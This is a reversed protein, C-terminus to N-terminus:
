YDKSGLPGYYSDPLILSGIIPDGNLEQLQRWQEDFAANHKRHDDVWAIANNQINRYTKRESDSDFSDWGHLHQREVAAQADQSLKLFKGWIADSESRYSGDPDKQGYGLVHEIGWGWTNAAHVAADFGKDKGLLARIHANIQNYGDGASYSPDSNDWKTIQLRADGWSNLWGQARKSLKIPDHPLTAFDFPTWYEINKVAAYERYDRQESANRSNWWAKMVKPDQKYTQKILNDAKNYLNAVEYANMAGERAQNKFDYLKQDLTVLNKRLEPPVDNWRWESESTNFVLDGTSQVKGKDDFSVNFYKSLFFETDPAAAVTDQVIKQYKSFLGMDQARTSNIDNLYNRDMKQKLKNTEDIYNRMADVGPFGALTSQDVLHQLDARASIVNNPDDEGNKWDWSKTEPSYALNHVVWLPNTTYMQNFFDHRQQVYEKYSDRSQWSEYSGYKHVEHEIHAYKSQKWENYAQWGAADTASQYYETPTKYRIDGKAILDSFAMFNQESQVSPDTGVLMLAAWQKSSRMLDGIGPMRFMQYVLESPPLKVATNGEGYGEGALTKGAPIFWKSPDDKYDTMWQDTAKQYDGGAADIYTQFAAYDERQGEFAVRPATPSLLAVIGRATLLDKAQENALDELTPGDYGAYYPDKRALEQRNQENLPIIHGTEDRDLGYRHMAETIGLALSKQSSENAGFSLDLGMAQAAAVVPRPFIQTNPGYQFLYGQALPSTTNKNAWQLFAQIPPHMGPIPIPVGGIAAGLPGQAGFKVTSSSLMNMSSLPMWPSALKNALKPDLGFGQALHDTLWRYGYRAPVMYEGSVPDKKFFGSKVGLDFLQKGHVLATPNRYAIHGWAQFGEFFPQPFPFVFQMLETFRSQKTFDFMVRRVQGLAFDRSANDINRMIEPTLKADKGLAAYMSAEARRKWVAYFPQRNLADEPQRVFWDYFKNTIKTPIGGDAAEILTPAHIVPRQTVDPIHLKMAKQLNTVNGELALRAIDPSNATYSHIVKSLKDAWEDVQDPEVGIRTRLTTYRDNRAWALLARRTDDVSGGEAVSRLAISGPESQRAQNALDHSWWYLHDGANGQTPVMVEWSGDTKMAKGWNNRGRLMENIIDSQRVQGSAAAEYEYAGARQVRITGDGVPMDAGYHKDLFSAVANRDEAARHGWAISALRDQVSSTTALFRANEDGLVVRTVYAPRAVTLSKWFRLWMQFVEGSNKSVFWAARTARDAGELAPVINKVKGFVNRDWLSFLRDRMTIYHRIGQRVVVPDMVAMQNRLQSELIPTDIGKGGIVGFSQKSFRANAEIQPAFIADKLQQADEPSLGYDATIREFAQDNIDNILKEIGQNHAEIGRGSNLIEAAQDEFRRLESESFSSYRTAHEYVYEWPRNNFDLIRGPNMNPLAAIRKGVGSETVRQSTVASRVLRRPGFESLLSSGPVEVSLSGPAFVSSRSDQVIGMADAMLAQHDTTSVWSGNHQYFLPVDEWQGPKLDEAVKNARFGENIRADIVKQAISGEPATGLYHAKIGQQWERWAEDKSMGESLAQDVKSKLATMFPLDLTGRAEVKGRLRYITRGLTSTDGEFMKRSIRSKSFKELHGLFTDLSSSYGRAKDANEIIRDLSGGHELIGPLLFGKLYNTRLKGAVVLPDLEWGIAFDLAPGVWHKYKDGLPEAILSGPSAQQSYLRQAQYHADSIASRYTAGPSDGQPDYVASGAAALGAVPYKLIDVAGGFVDNYVQSSVHMQWGIPKIVFKNFWSNEFATQDAKIRDAEQQVKDWYDTGVSEGLMPIAEGNFYATKQTQQVDYGTTSIQLEPTDAHQKNYEDIQRQLKKSASYGGSTYTDAAQKVSNVTKGSQTIGIAINTIHQPDTEGTANAWQQVWYLNKNFSRPNLGMKTLAVSMGMADSFKMDPLQDAIVKAFHSVLGPDLHVQNAQQQGRATKYGSGPETYNLQQNLMSTVPVVGFNNSFLRAEKVTLHEGTIPSVYDGPKTKGFVYMPPIAWNRAFLRGLRALEKQEPSLGSLYLVTSTPLTGHSSYDVTTVPDYGSASTQGSGQAQAQKINKQNRRRVEGPTDYNPDYPM